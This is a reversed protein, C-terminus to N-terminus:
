PKWFSPEEPGSALRRAKLLAEAFQFDEEHSIKISNMPTLPLFVRNEGIYADAGREYRRRYSAVNWITVAWNLVHVAPNDQTPALHAGLRVNVPETGCFVQMQTSQVSILTDASEESAFMEIAREIDSTRLLPCVPSIMVLTDVDWKTVFDYNFDDGSADDAAFRPDRDFVKAGLSVALRALDAGDTNVVVEDFMNCALATNVAYSLLPAGDIMRLNKAKVRKSGARAPIHGVIKGLTKM